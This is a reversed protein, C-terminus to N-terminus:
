AFWGAITVAAFAAIATNILNLSDNDLIGRPELTAGLASEVFSGITAGMVVAFVDGQEILGLGAAAFGLLLAAGFGALTGPVSIAGPTGPSAPRPPILLWTRRGWAKGIESAVTDSSGATLAAVFALMAPVLAYSVVGIVAAAAAIGTNAIANGAGRRGGRAEAIGLSAKARLGLRSAGSAAVFALLLLVWGEWGAALYISVGIVIGAVVGSISVTRAAYGAGAVVLNLVLAPLLMPQAARVAAIVMDESILSMAWLVVASVMPVSVNDDLGIPVTEVAAAVLAAVFPAGISYWIYPPPVVAPRCWWMLFAGAAGGFLWFALSGAVTKRANWPWRWRTIRRGVITAMGDGAALIGWAGAVIDLRDPRLLILVLISTPYLVIGAPVSAHDGPRHLRGRTVKKLVAVNFIIALAALVAAQWWTLYRLLLAFGGMLIHVIKRADDAAASTGTM